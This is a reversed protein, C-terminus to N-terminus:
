TAKHKCEKRNHGFRLCGYCHGHHKLVDIRDYFPKLLLSECYELTHRPSDCYLCPTSFTSRNINQFASKPPDHTTDIKIDNQSSKTVESQNAFCSTTVHKGAHFKPTVSRVMAERGFMPDNAKKSEARVFKVLHSFKVRSGKEKTQYVINRWREHLNLPLKNVIQRMNDTYELVRLADM